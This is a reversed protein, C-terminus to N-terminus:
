RPRRMYRDLLSKASDSSAVAPVPKAPPGGPQVGEPHIGMAKAEEPSVALTPSELIHAKSDSIPDDGMLLAAIDDDLASPEQNKPEAVPEPKAISKSPTAVKGHLAIIAKSFPPIPTPSAVNSLPQSGAPAASVAPTALIQLEFELTGVGIIDGHKVPCRGDVAQGNVRTGNTSKFDELFCGQPTIQLACHKKSILDSAPRLQCGPERGIVFERVGVPIVLGQQKGVNKVVLQVKLKM